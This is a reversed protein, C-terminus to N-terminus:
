CYACWVLSRIFVLVLGKEGTLSEFSQQRGSQDYIAAISPIIDGVNLMTSSTASVPLLMTVLFILSLAAILKM